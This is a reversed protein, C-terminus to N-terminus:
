EAAFIGAAAQAKMALFDPLSLGILGAGGIRMLERRSVGECTRVPRGPISLM